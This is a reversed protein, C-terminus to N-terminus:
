AGRRARMVRATLQTNIDDAQNASAGLYMAACFFDLEDDAVTAWVQALERVQEIFEPTVNLGMIM